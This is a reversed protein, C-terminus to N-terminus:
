LVLDISSLIGGISLAYKMLGDIHVNISSLHNCLGMCCMVSVIKM